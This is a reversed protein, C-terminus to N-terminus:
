LNHKLIEIKYITKIMIKKRRKMIMMKIKNIIMIIKNNNFNNKKIFIKIKKTSKNKNIHKQNKYIFSNQNKKKSYIM